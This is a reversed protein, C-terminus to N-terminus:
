DCGDLDDVRRSAQFQEIIQEDSLRASVFNWGDKTLDVLQFESRIWEIFAVLEPDSM